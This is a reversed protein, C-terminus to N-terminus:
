GAYMSAARVQIRTKAQKSRVLRQVKQASKDQPTKGPKVKRQPSPTNITNIPIELVLSPTAGAGEKTDPASKQTQSVGGKDAVNDAKKAPKETKFVSAAGPHLAGQVAAFDTLRLQQIRRLLWASNLGSGGDATRNPNPNPNPNPNRGGDATRRLLVEIVDCPAAFAQELLACVARAEETAFSREPLCAAAAAILPMQSASLLAMAPKRMAEHNNKALMLRVSYTVEQGHSHTVLFADSREGERPAATRYSTHSTCFNEIESGFGGSILFKCDGVTKGSISDLVALMGRSGASGEQLLLATVAANFDADASAGSAPRERFLMKTFDRQLCESITNSLLADLGPTTGDRENFDQHRMSVVTIRHRGPQTGEPTQSTCAKGLAFAIIGEYLAAALAYTRGLLMEEAYGMNKQITDKKYPANLNALLAEEPMSLLFAINATSTSAFDLAAGTSDMSASLLHMVAALASWITSVDESSCGLVKLAAALADLRARRSAGEAAPGELAGLEQATAPLFLKARQADGLGGLLDYFVNFWCAGRALTSKELFLTSYEVLQLGGEDGFVAAYKAAYHAQGSSIGLANMVTGVSKRVARLRDVTPSPAESAEFFELLLNAECDDCSAGKVVVFKDVAERVTGGGGGCKLADQLGRLARNAVQYPHPALHPSNFLPPNDGEWQYAVPDVPKEVGITPAVALLLSCVDTYKNGTEFRHRLLELIAADDAEKIQAVDTYLAVRQHFNADAAVLDKNSVSTKKLMGNGGDFSVNYAGAIKSDKGVVKAAMWMKEPHRMFVSSGDAFSTTM